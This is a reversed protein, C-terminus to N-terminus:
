DLIITSNLSLPLELYNRLIDIPVCCLYDDLQAKHLADPALCTLNRQTTVYAQQLQDTYIEDRTNDKKSLIDNMIHQCTQYVPLKKEQDTIRHGETYIREFCQTINRRLGHLQDSLYHTQDTSRNGNEKIWLTAKQTYIDHLDDPLWLM